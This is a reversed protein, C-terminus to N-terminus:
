RKAMRVRDLRFTRNARRDHCYALLYWRLGRQEVLLPTVHRPEPSRGPMTYLIDIASESRIAAQILEVLEAQPLTPIEDPAAPLWHPRVQELATEARRRASALVPEPIGQTLKATATESLSFPLGMDQVVLALSFLQARETPTFQATGPATSSEPEDWFLFLGRRRLQRMAAAAEGPELFVHRPSLLHALTRRLGNLQRIQALDAASSFELVTGTRANILPQERIQAALDHPLPHQLGAELVAIFRDAPGRQVAQRLSAPSLAYRGPAYPWVYAELDWLLRWDVPTPVSLRRNELTWAAKYLPPDPPYLLKPAHLDSALELGRLVAIERRYTPPMERVDCGAKLADILRARLRRQHLDAPMQIWANMLHQVQASPPQALWNEVYFTPYTHKTRELLSAAQLLRVWSSPRSDIAVQRQALFQKLRQSSYRNMWRCASCISFVTAVVGAEPPHGRDCSIIEMPDM